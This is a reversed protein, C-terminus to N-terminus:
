RDSWVSKRQEATHEDCLTQVYSNDERLKGEKGCEECVRASEEAAEIVLDEIRNFDVGSYYFRLTGYKEKVQDIRLDILEQMSLIEMIKKCLKDIVSYWGDGCQCNVPEKDIAMFPYKSQLDKELEDRM